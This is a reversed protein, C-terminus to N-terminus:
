PVAPVAPVPAEATVAAPVLAKLKELYKAIGHDRVAEENAQAWWSDPDFRKRYHEQLCEYGKGELLAVERGFHEYSGLKGPQYSLPPVQTVLDRGNLFRVLDLSDARPAGAANTVKPQGFTKVEVDFGQARLYLGAIAAMAGGLSHGAIRTRYGPRLHPAYLPSLDKVASAFGRHLRIHLISDDMQTYDADLKVDSFVATGRFALWQVHASDDVQLFARAGTAPGTFLFCSDKGCATRVASDPAYALEALTAFRLAEAFDVSYDQPCFTKTPACAALLGACALFAGWRGPFARSTIDAM